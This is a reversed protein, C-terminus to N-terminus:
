QNKVCRVSYGYGKLSNNRDLFGSFFEMYFANVTQEESVAKQKEVPEKETGMKFDLSNPLSEQDSTWWYGFQSKASFSGEPDIMGGGLACFGYKDEGRMESCIMKFTPNKKERYWGKSSKLMIGARSGAFESLHGWESVDPIHWGNPALGRSDSVAYWNYLRGYKKHKKRKFEYYCCAPLGKECACKWEEATKAEPILEGNKFRSLNLNKTMWVQKGIKVELISHKFSSSKSTQAQSFLHDLFFFLAAFIIVSAKFNM